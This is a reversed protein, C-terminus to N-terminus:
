NAQNIGGTAFNFEIVLINGMELALGESIQSSFHLDHKLIRKGAQIWSHCDSRNQFLWQNDMLKEVRIFVALVSNMLQKFGDTKPFFVQIAIGM